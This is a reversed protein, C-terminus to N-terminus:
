YWAYGCNVGIHDNKYACAYAWECSELESQVEIRRRRRRRRRRRECKRIVTIREEIIITMKRVKNRGRMM